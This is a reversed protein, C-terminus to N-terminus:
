TLLWIAGYVLLALWAVQAFAIAAVVTVARTAGNERAQTAMAVTDDVTAHATSM